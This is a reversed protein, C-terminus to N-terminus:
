SLAEVEEDIEDLSVENLLVESKNSSADIDDDMTVEDIAVDVRGEEQLLGLIEENDDVSEKVPKDTKETTIVEEIDVEALVDEAILDVNDDGLIEEAIIDLEEKSIEAINLSDVEPAAIEDQVDANGDPIADDQKQEAQIEGESLKVKQKLIEPSVGKLEKDFTSTYEALLDDMVTKSDDLEKALAENKQQLAEMAESNGAPEASLALDTYPTVMEELAKGLISFEDPNRNVYVSILTKYFARERNMFEDIVAELEDDKMNYCESFVQKLSDRRNIDNTIVESALKNAANLDAKKRRINRWILVVCITLLVLIAEGAFTLMLLNMTESNM